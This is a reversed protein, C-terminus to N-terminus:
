RRRWEPEQRVLLERCKEPHAMAREVAREMRMSQSGKILVLDGAKLEGALANGADRSTEFQRVKEKPLGAEIAAEATPKKRMRITWLVEM